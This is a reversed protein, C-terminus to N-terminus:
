IRSNGDLSIVDIGVGVDDTGECYDGDSPECSYAGVFPEDYPAGFWDADSGEHYDGDATECPNGETGECGDGGLTYAVIGLFNKLSHNINHNVNVRVLM